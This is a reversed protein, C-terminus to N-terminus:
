WSVFSLRRLNFVRCHGPIRFVSSRFVGLISEAEDEKERTFVFDGRRRLLRAFEESEWLEHVRKRMEEKENPERGMVADLDDEM